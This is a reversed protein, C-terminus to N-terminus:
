SNSSFHWRYYALASQGDSVIDVIKWNKHGEAKRSEDTRFMHFELYRQPGGTQMVRIGLVVGGMRNRRPSLHEIKADQYNSLHRLMASILMDKMRVELDAKQEDNMHRYKNGAAWRAMYPFAFYRAAEQELLIKLQTKLQTAPPNTSTGKLFYMLKGIGERLVEDPNQISSSFPAAVRPSPANVLPAATVSTNALILLMALGITQGMILRDIKPRKAQLHGTTSCHM